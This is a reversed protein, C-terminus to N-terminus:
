LLERARVKEDHPFTNGLVLLDPVHARLAAELETLREAREVTYGASHLVWTRLQLLTTDCDCLLILAMSGNGDLSKNRLIESTYLRIKRESVPTAVRRM